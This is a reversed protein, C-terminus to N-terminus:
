CRIQFPIYIRKPKVKGATIKGYISILFSTDSTAWYWFSESWLPKKLHAIVFDGRLHRQQLLTFFLCSFFEPLVALDGELLAGLKDRIRHFYLKEPGVDISPVSWSSIRALHVLVDGEGLHFAVLIIDKRSYTSLTRLLVCFSLLQQTLLLLLVLLFLSKKDFSKEEFLKM